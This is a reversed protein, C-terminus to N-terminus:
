DPSPVVKKVGLIECVGQILDSLFNAGHRCVVHEVFLRAITDARQDPVSFAEVWKTLYDVFCVVYQNGNVTLTLQLVNM